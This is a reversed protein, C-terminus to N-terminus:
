PSLSGPKSPLPWSGEGCGPPERCCSTLLGRWSAWHIGTCFACPAPLCYVDDKSKVRSVVLAALHNIKMGFFGLKPINQHAMSHFINTYKMVMPFIKRGNPVNYSLTTYNTTMESM